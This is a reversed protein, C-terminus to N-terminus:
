WLYATVLIRSNHRNLYIYVRYPFACGVHWVSEVSPGCIARSWVYRVRYVYLLKEHLWWCIWQGRSSPSGVCDVARRSVSGHTRVWSREWFLWHLLPSFDLKHQCSASPKSSGYWWCAIPVNLVQEHPGVWRLHRSEVFWEGVKGVSPRWKGGLPGV